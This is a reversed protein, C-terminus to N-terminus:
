YVIFNESQAALQIIKSEESSSLGRELLSDSIQEYAFSKPVSTLGDFKYNIYDRAREMDIAKELDIANKIIKALAAPEYALSSELNRFTIYASIWYSDPYAEDFQERSISERRVTKTTKCSGNREYIVEFRRRAAFANYFNIVAKKMLEIDVDVAQDYYEDFLTQL